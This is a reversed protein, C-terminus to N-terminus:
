WVPFHCPHWLPCSLSLMQEPHLLPIFHLVYLVSFVITGWVHIIICWLTYNNARVPFVPCYQDSWRSSHLSSIFTSWIYALFIILPESLWRYSFRSFVSPSIPKSPLGILPSLILIYLLHTTSLPYIPLQLTYWTWYDSFSLSPQLLQTKNQTQNWNATCLLWLM